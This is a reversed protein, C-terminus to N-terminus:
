NRYQIPTLGKQKTKMREVNYISILKM